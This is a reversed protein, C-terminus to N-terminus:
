ALGHIGSFPDVNSDRHWSYETGTAVAEAVEEGYIKAILALAMDMGASVGSSTLYKEDEVWRAKSVWNVEPFNPTFQSFVQKNTTARRGNLRGTAALLLSGTCITTVYTSKDCQADIWEVLESNNAEHRAGPGGPIMLIDYTAGDSIAEDIAGKPGQFSRVTDISEAVVRLEPADDIQGGDKLRQLFGFMQLPGYFDLLEFDPFLLAGVTKIVNSEWRQIEPV